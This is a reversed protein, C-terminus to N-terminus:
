FTYDVAIVIDKFKGINMLKHNWLSRQLGIWAACARDSVAFGLISGTVISSFQNLRVVSKTNVNCIESDSACYVTTEKMAIFKVPNHLPLEIEQIQNNFLVM